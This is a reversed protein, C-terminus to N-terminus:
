VNLMPVSFCSAADGAKRMASWATKKGTGNDTVVHFEVNDGCPEAAHKRDDVGACGTFVSYRSGTHYEVSSPSRVYIGTGFSKQGIQFGTRTWTPDVLHSAWGASHASPKLEAVDTYTRGTTSVLHQYVVHREPLLASALDHLVSAHAVHVLSAFLLLGRM